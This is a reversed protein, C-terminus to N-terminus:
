YNKNQQTRARDANRIKESMRQKYEIQFNDRKHKIEELDDCIGSLLMEIIGYYQAIATAANKINHVNKRAFLKCADEENLRMANNALEMVNHKHERVMQSLLTRHIDMEILTKENLLILDKPLKVEKEM